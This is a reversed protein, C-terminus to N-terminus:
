RAFAAAIAGGGFCVIAAAAYAWPASIRGIAKLGLAALVFSWMEFPNFTSLFAALKPANEPVFKALSPLLGLLDRQTSFSEPGVRAALLGILLYAIGFNIVAINAALGFLRGFTANGSGIANALTFIAASLVIALMAIVPFFLWAYRQTAIAFGLAQHQKEPSMAAINPDHAANHAFTATVLHEGAPVQLLAGITGLVCIVIFAWGWHTRERLAEFASAPAVIVDWLIALGSRKPSAAEISM